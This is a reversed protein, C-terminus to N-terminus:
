VRTCADELIQPTLESLDTPNVTVAIGQFVKKLADKSGAYVM